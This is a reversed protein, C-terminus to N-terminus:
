AATHAALLLAVEEDVWEEFLERAMRDRM